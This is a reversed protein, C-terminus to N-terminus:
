GVLLTTACGGFILRRIYGIAMSLSTLSERQLLYPKVIMAVLSGINSTQSGTSIIELSIAPPKGEILSTLDQQGTFISDWKRDWEQSIKNCLFDWRSLELQFSGQQLPSLIRWYIWSSMCSIGELHGTAACMFPDASFKICVAASAVNYMIYMAPSIVIPYLAGTNISTPVRVTCYLCVPPSPYFKTVIRIKAMSQEFTWILSISSNKGSRLQLGGINRRLHSARLELVCGWVMCSPSIGLGDAVTWKTWTTM